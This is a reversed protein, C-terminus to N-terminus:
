SKQRYLIDTLTKLAAHQTCPACNTVTLEKAKPKFIHAVNAELPTTCEIEIKQASTCGIELFIARLQALSAPYCHFFLKNDNVRCNCREHLTDPCYSEFFHRALLQYVPSMGLIKNNAKDLLGGNAFFFLASPLLLSFLHMKGHGSSFIKTKIGSHERRRRVVIFKM